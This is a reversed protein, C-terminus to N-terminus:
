LGPVKLTERVFHYITPTDLFVTASHPSRRPGSKMLSHLLLPLIFSSPCPLVTFWLCLSPSFSISSFLNLLFLLSCLNFSSTFLPCPISSPLTLILQISYRIFHCLHNRTPSIELLPVGHTPFTSRQQPRSPSTLSGLLVKVFKCKIKASAIIDFTRSEQAKNVSSIIKTDLRVLENKRSLGELYRKRAYFNHIYKRVFFGRWRRQITTEVSVPDIALEGVPWSNLWGNLKVDVCEDVCVSSSWWEASPDFSSTWSRTFEIGARGTAKSDREVDKLLKKEEEREIKCLVLPVQTTYAVMNELVIAENFLVIICHWLKQVNSFMNKGADAVVSCVTFSQKEDGFFLSALTSDKDSYFLNQGVYVGERELLM